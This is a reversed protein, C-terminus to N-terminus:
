VAQAMGQGQSFNLEHCPHWPFHHFELKEDSVQGSVWPVVSILSVKEQSALHQEAGTSGLWGVERPALLFKPLQGLSQKEVQPWPHIGEPTEKPHLFPSRRTCWKSAPSSVHSDPLEEPWRPKSKKKPGQTKQVSLSSEPLLIFCFTDSSLASTYSPLRGSVERTMCTHRHTLTNTVTLSTIHIRTHTTNNLDRHTHTVSLCVSHCVSPYVSTLSAQVNGWHTSIRCADAAQTGHTVGQASSSIRIHLVELSSLAEPRPHKVTRHTYSHQVHINQRHTKCTNTHLQSVGQSYKGLSLKLWLFGYIEM